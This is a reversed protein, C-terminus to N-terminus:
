RQTFNTRWVKSQWCQYDANHDEVGASASPLLLVAVSVRRLADIATDKLPIPLIEALGDLMRALEEVERQRDAMAVLIVCM